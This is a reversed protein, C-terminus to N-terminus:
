FICNVQARRFFTGKNVLCSLVVRFEDQTVKEGVRIVRSLIKIPFGLQRVKNGGLPYNWFGRAMASFIILVFCVAPQM